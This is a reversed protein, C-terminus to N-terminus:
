GGANSDCDRGDGGQGPGRVGGRRIVFCDDVPHFELAQPISRGAYDNGWKHCGAWDSDTYVHVTKMNIESRDDPYTWELTPFELLYRALRKLKAQSRLRPVAMDRCLEKM